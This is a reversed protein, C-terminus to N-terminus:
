CFYSTRTDSAPDFCGHLDHPVASKLWLKTTPGDRLPKALDFIAVFSRRQVSDYVMGLLYADLEKNPNAGTKPVVLPEGAFFRTGFFYCDIDQNRQGEKLPTTRGTEVAHRSYGCPASSDGVLNSAVAYVYSARKTKFHPHVVCHEACVNQSGPAVSLDVTTRSHPDVELRWLYTQPVGSFVPVFGGWAGLFDKSDSPPWGSFVTVLNGTKEDEYAHSFHISFSAPIDVEFREMKNNDQTPRPLAFGKVNARGDMDLSAAPGKLGTVFGAQDMTLANVVFFVYHDTVAMDHPALECGPINYTAEGVKAFGDPSWETITVDLSQDNALQTWHWGVLHGTKSCRTPHATHAAGGLLDPLWGSPVNKLSVPLKHSPPLTNQLNDLGVTELTHPDLQYPHGGEYLALLKGGFAVVHTNAPNKLGFRFARRALKELLGPEHPDENVGRGPQAGLPGTGFTGRYLFRNAEREHCFAQTQVFRSQFVVERKSISSPPPITIQVVLGDADLVHSVRQGNVGFKGPGNRYLTGELDDPLTGEMEDIVYKTHGDIGDILFPNDPPSEYTYYASRWDETLVVGQGLVDQDEIPHENNAVASRIEPSLEKGQPYLRTPGIECKVKKPPAASSTTSSATTTASRTTPNTSLAAGLPVSLLLSLLKMM